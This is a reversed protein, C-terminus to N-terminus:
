AEDCIDEWKSSGSRIRHVLERIGFGFHVTAGIFVAVLVSALGAEMWRQALNMYLKLLPPLYGAAIIVAMSGVAVSGAVLKGLQNDSIKYFSKM